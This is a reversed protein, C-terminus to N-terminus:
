SAHSADFHGTSLISDSNGSILSATGTLFPFSPDRGVQLQVFGAPSIGGELAPLSGVPYSDGATSREFIAVPFLIGTRVLLLELVNWLGREGKMQIQFILVSFSMM